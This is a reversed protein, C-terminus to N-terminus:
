TTEEEGMLMAVPFQDLVDGAFVSTSEASRDVPLSKGTLVNTYRAVTSDSPWEICTDTWIAAGLPPQPELKTLRALWRPAVVIISRGEHRRAFACIHDAATGAVRLPKYSGQVFVEPHRQRLGLVVWTLYLKALGSQWDDLLEELLGAPAIGNRCRDLLMQMQNHRPAFDVVRRNDPDVLSFSNVANGQYIDPVGPSTLKLITQSLSNLCGFYATLQAFRSFDHLFANHAPRELLRQVFETLAREYEAHPNLWSTTGKAERAAKVMYAQVREIFECASAAGEQLPWAGVLTQYLLYEDNRSPAPGESLQLRKTRNLRSWRSLHQRWREPMESLVAIRARVDESRKTDHTSTALMALPWQQAREQNSLHIANTSISFRKPDGGVENLSVLRNYLYSATDEVGKAMVPSSVQQFKMAFELMAARRVGAEDNGSEGLLVAQLFDFASLDAASSRHRAVNIAWNIAHRDEESIGRESIYTRYVPFCAITEVIVDRLANRTFDSTHRDLQAIRDLQTALVGIEAALAIRMILKKSHYALEDFEMNRGTFERYLRTLRAEAAGDVLWTNILATFDYGTTGHVAWQAPLREHVALIKEVVVYLTPAGPGIHQMRAHLKAYYDQPDYLGDPHDIRLGDVLGAEILSFLFAHTAEFVVDEHMRLAALDNIDFFRRFNIEDTAVRWFSLRYAQADLLGALADFSHPEGIRGNVAAVVAQIYNAIEPSRECLRALRRKHVEKDRYREARADETVDDRAPLRAFASLLSDFDAVNPDDEDINRPQHPTSFIQPYTRPDVPFLHEFYQVSFGGAQADFQLQLEGRELITGYTDGLVPVLLRGHMAHRAPNWDIDFYGAYQAAQGNELVDLWWQNERGMVGLHNPVIDVILGMNHQHLTRVLADLDARTGLEPNLSNHDVVDYGHDSGPRAKLIPSAYLHSIGLEALYPVIHEADAFTFRHNLQVRYTARLPRVPAALTIMQTKADQAM